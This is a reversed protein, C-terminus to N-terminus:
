SKVMGLKTIWPTLGGWNTVQYQQVLGVLSFVLWYLVLGSSFQYGFILTMLPFMYLMQQQMAVATDDAESPTKQALKEEAAVVPSMMKSTLFQIAASFVLFIGPLPVPLGPLRFVDPQSLNLYFFQTSLQFDSPLRNFSYLISNLRSPLDGNSKLVLNLANFLAILVIIQLIQPLCGSAPNAGHSKYLEAQATALATKDREHKEKLKTVEPALDAMKKSLRLGPLVLPTMLFRLAITLTIIAWGLNGAVKHLFVLANILPHFLILNWLEIM